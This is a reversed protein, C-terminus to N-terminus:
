GEKGKQRREKAAKTRAEAAKRSAKRQHALFEEETMNKFPSTDVGRRRKTERGKRAAEAHQEPTKAAMAAAGRRSLVTRFDPGYKAALAETAKVWPEHYKSHCCWHSATLNEPADNSQDEDIHHVLQRRKGKEDPWPLVPEGCFFCPWPGPGHHERHIQRYHPQKRLFGNV